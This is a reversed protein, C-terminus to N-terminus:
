LFKGTEIVATLNAFNPWTRYNQVFTMCSSYSQKYVSISITYTLYELGFGIYEPLWFPIFFHLSNCYATMKRKWQIRPLWVLQTQQLDPYTKSVLCTGIKKTIHVIIKTQISNTFNNMVKSQLYDSHCSKTEWLCDDQSITTKVSPM